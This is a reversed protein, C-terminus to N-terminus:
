SRVLSIHPFTSDSHIKFADLRSSFLRRNPPPRVPGDAETREMAEVKPLKVLVAVAEALGKSAASMLATYGNVRVNVDCTPDGALRRVQPPSSLLRDAFSQM